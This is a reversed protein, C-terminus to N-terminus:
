WHQQMCFALGGVADSCLGKEYKLGVWRVPLLELIKNTCEHTAVCSMWESGFFLTAQRQNRRMAWM